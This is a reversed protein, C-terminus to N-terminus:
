GQQNVTRHGNWSGAFVEYAAFVGECVRHDCPGFRSSDSRLREMPAIEGFELQIADISTGRSSGYTQFSLGESM